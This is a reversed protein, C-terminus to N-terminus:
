RQGGDRGDTLAATLETRLADVVSLLELRAPCPSACAPLPAAWTPEGDAYQEYISAAILEDATQMPQPM